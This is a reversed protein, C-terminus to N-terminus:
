FYTYRNGAHKESLIEKSNFSLGKYQEVLKYFKKFDINADALAKEFKKADAKEANEKRKKTDEADQIFDEISDYDDSASLEVAVAKYIAKYGYWSVYEKSVLKKRVKIYITNYSGYPATIKIAGDYTTIYLKRRNEYDKLIDFVILEVKRLIQSASANEVENLSDNIQKELEKLKM